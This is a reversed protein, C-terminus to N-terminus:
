TTLRFAFRVLMIPFHIIQASIAFIKPPPMKVHFVHLIQTTIIVANASVLNLFQVILVHILLIPFTFPHVYVVIMKRIFLHACLAHIM